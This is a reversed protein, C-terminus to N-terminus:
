EQVEKVRIVIGGYREQYDDAGHKSNFAEMLDGDPNVALYWVWDVTSENM